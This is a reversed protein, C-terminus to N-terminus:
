VPTRGRPRLRGAAPDQRTRDFNYETKGSANTLVTATMTIQGNAIGVPGYAFSPPGASSVLTTASASASASTVHGSPDRMM